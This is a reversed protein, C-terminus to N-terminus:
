RGRAWVDRRHGARTRLRLGLDVGMAEAEAPPAQGEITWTADTEPDYLEARLAIGGGEPRALAAVPTHCSGGLASLLGREAEVCATTEPCAIGAALAVLWDDALRCEVGLAGQGAAPLLRSVALAETVADSRGIRALGAVALLLAECDRAALRALRSNANGRMPVIALDPRLRALQATRRPSSTGVRAGAPLADLSPALASVFADRPDDRPPIAVIGLGEPLDAEVDKMSHVALDIRGALLERELAKVFLGKGGIDTLPRDLVEDGTTSIGLIEFAFGAAQPLAELRAVVERTQAMAMPSKRSGVRITRTM